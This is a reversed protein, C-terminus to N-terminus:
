SAGVGPLGSLAAHLRPDHGAGPWWRWYRPSLTVAALARATHGLKAVPGTYCRGSWYGAGRRRVVAGIGEYVRSAVTIACRARWPLYRLGRDASRYFRAAVDLVDHVRALAADRAGPADAVIAAADVEPPLPVYTRGRRADELVDRAVNTLQMGVGLDIAFARARLDDCGLVDCMMLGVTSAVGYAYRLLADMDEIRVRGTDRELTDLLARVVAPDIGRRRALGAFAAVPDDGGHDGDGVDDTDLAASALRDRLAALARRAEVPPREDVLDDAHRCFAYLTAADRAHAAGLFASAWHFSRGHRALVRRAADDAVATSPSRVTRTALAQGTM